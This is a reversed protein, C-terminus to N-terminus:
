NKLLKLFESELAVLKEGLIENLMHNLEGTNIMVSTEGVSCSKKPTLKESQQSNEKDSFSIQGNYCLSFQKNTTMRTKGEDNNAIAEQKQTNLDSKMAEGNEDFARKVYAAFANAFEMHNVKHLWMKQKPAELSSKIRLRAGNVKQEIVKSLMSRLTDASISTALGDAAVVNEM